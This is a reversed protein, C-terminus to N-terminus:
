SILTTPLGYKAKNTEDTHKRGFFPNNSGSKDRTWLGLGVSFLQLVPGAETGRKAPFPGM